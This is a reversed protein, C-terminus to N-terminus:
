DIDSTFGTTLRASGASLTLSYYQALTNDPGNFPNTGQRLSQGNVTSRQWCLSFLIELWR